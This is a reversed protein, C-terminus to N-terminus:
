LQLLSSGDIDLELILSSKSVIFINGCEAIEGFYEPDEVLMKILVKMDQRLQIINLWIIEELGYLSTLTM